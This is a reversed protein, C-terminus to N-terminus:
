LEIFYANGNEDSSKGNVVYFAKAEAANVYVEITRIVKRGGSKYAEKCKEVIEDPSYNGSSFQIEVSVPKAPAKKAAPKKEAPKTKPAAKKEAKEPKAKAAPVKKAEATKAPEAKTKAPKKAPTKKAPKEAKKEQVAEVPKVEAVSEAKVSEKVVTKEVTKKGKGKAVPKEAKSATEVPKAEFATENKVPAEIAEKAVTKKSKKPTTKEASAATATNKKAKAM